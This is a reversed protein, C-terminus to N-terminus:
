LHDCPKEISDVCHNDSHPDIATLWDNIIFIAEHTQSPWDRINEGMTGSITNDEDGFPVQPSKFLRNLVPALIANFAQDYGLFAKLAYEERKFLAVVTVWIFHLPAFAWLFLLTLLVLVVFFVARTM